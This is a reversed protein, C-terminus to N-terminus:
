GTSRGLLRQRTWDGFDGLIILKNAAPIASILYKFNEYIKDITEDTNTMIPVKTCIILALKKGHHLSLRMSMLSNNVEKLPWVLKSVLSTKIASGEGAERKDDPTRGSWFFSSGSSKEALEGKGALRTESLTAINIKYRAHESEKHWRPWYARLREVHRHEFTNDKSEQKAWM